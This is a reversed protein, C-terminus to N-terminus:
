NQCFAYEADEQWERLIAYVEVMDAATLLREFSRGTIVLREYALSGSNGVWKVFGRRYVARGELIRLTWKINSWIGVTESDTWTTIVKNSM